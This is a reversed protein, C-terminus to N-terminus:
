FGKFELQNPDGKVDFHRTGGSFLETLPKKDFLSVSTIQLMRYLDLEIGLQKKVIALLLYSCIAICLQTKVANASTGWFTKIKLHQKTWRFFLEIQWRYKYIRAILIANSVFDNTVFTYVIATEFDRYKIRRIKGPYRRSSKKDVLVVVQDCLLGTTKDIKRSYLRRAKMNERARTVFFAGAKEIAYWRAYDLYGKDMCYYAGAEYTIDDLFKVDNVTGDVITFFAPISGNLDLQMNLKISSHTADFRAWGFVSLCLEIITSDLLYVTADLDLASLEYSVPEMPRAKNILLMALDRYIRWDRKQNAAALTNRAIHKTFGLHYLKERHAGLCTVVDRLSERYAFQGFLMARFQQTCPLQRVRYEGAYRSVCTNFQYPDVFDLLQAFVYKDQYM